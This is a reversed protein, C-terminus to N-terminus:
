WTLEELSFVAPDIRPDIEIKEVIFETSSNKKMKDQMVLRMPVPLGDVIEVDTVLMEKLLKDSLSYKEAKRGIFLESDVWVIQKPYPVRRSKAEMLIKYCEHGDVEETGMLSVDYASLLGKEGTMDEYSFDSGLVSDRLASGQLRIVEEADPFYLYIEDKTRLIKQGAEEKSTFEILTEDEGRAWSRFTSEKAGFRDEIIMRGETYATEHVENEEMRTIIEEADLGFATVSLLLGTTMGFVVRILNRRKM